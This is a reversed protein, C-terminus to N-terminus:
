LARLKADLAVLATEVKLTLDGEYRRQDEVAELVALIEPALDCFPDEFASRADIFPTLDACGRAKSRQEYETWAVNKAAELTKLTELNVNGELAIPPLNGPISLIM